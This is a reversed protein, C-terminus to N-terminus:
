QRRPNLPAPQSMAMQLLSCPKLHVAMLSFFSIGVFSPWFGKLLWLTSPDGERAWLPIFPRGMMGM